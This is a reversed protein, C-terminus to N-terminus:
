AGAAEAGGDRELAPLRGRGCASPRGRRRLGGLLGDAMFAPQSTALALTQFLSFLIAALRGSWQAGSGYCNKRGVVPGRQMREATNNDMPVDPHDVFVTLGQWHQQLSELTKRRAPHLDDEQLEAANQEALAAM